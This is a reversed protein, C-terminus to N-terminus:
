AFKPMPSFTGFHSRYLPHKAKGAVTFGRKARAKRLAHGHTYERKSVAPAQKPKYDGLGLASKIRNYVQKFM